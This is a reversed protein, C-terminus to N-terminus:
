VDLQCCDTDQGEPAHVPCRTRHWGRRYLRGPAGCMECISASAERAAEILRDSEDDTGNAYVVLEGWKEKVQVAVIDLGAEQAHATLKRSLDHLLEAWGNGCEFGLAMLSETIPATHDRYLEPFTQFLRQTNVHNM